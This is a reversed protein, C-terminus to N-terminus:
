PSPSVRSFSWYTPFHQQNYMNYYFYIIYSVSMNTNYKHIVFSSFVHLFYFCATWTLSILNEPHTETNKMSFWRYLGKYEIGFTHQWDRSIQFFIAIALSVAKDLDLSDTQPWLESTWVLWCGINIDISMNHTHHHNVAAAGTWKNTRNTQSKLLCMSWGTM